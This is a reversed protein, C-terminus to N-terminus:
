INCSYIDVMKFNLLLMKEASIRSSKQHIRVRGKGSETTIHRLEMVFKADETGDVDDFVIPAYSLLATYDTHFAVLIHGTALM